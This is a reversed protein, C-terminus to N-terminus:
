CPFLEGPGFAAACPVKSLALFLPPDRTRLRDSRCGKSKSLCNKLSIVPRNLSKQLNLFRLRSRYTPLNLKPTQKPAMTPDFRELTVTSRCPLFSTGVQRDQRHGIEVTQLIVPVFIPQAPQCDFNVRWLDFRNGLLYSQAWKTVTDTDAPIFDYNINPIYNFSQISIRSREPMQNYSPIAFIRNGLVRFIATM